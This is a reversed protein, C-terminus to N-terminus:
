KEKFWDALPTIHSGDTEERWVYYGRAITKGSKYTDTTGDSFVIHPYINMYESGQIKSCRWLGIGLQVM